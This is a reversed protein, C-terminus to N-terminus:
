TRQPGKLASSVSHRFQDLLTQLSEANDTPLMSVVLQLDASLAASAQQLVTQGTPTIFARIARGDEPDPREEIMARAHLRALLKTVNPRSVCLFEGIASPRVGDPAHRELLLLANFQAYHLKFPTLARAVVQDLLWATRLASLVLHPAPRDGAHFLDIV